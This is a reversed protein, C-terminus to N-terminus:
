RRPLVPIHSSAARHATNRVRWTALLLATLTVLLYADGYLHQWWTWALERYRTMPLDHHPGILFVAFVVYVAIASGASRVAQAVLVVLAPVIWVWHHSWATPSVLLMAIANVVLANAPDVRTMLLLAAGLVGFCAALWVGTEWAGPLDLRALAAAITQNAGYPSGSVGETPGAGTFWYTTSERWAVVFGVVTCAGASVMTVVVARFDKRLLFFLIFAAPTLKIAFALGVLTGRPLFTKRALCDVVVLAMLWLNVQGFTLTERVPELVLAVPVLIATAGAVEHGSLGPWCRGIVVYISVTLAALSLLTTLVMSVGLPVAALPAFVLLSSPPYLYPLSNGASTAPLPSYVDRGSWWAAAGFRYVQLDILEHGDLLAAARALALLGCAVIITVRLRHSASGWWSRLSRITTRFASSLDVSGVMCPRPHPKVPQRTGRREVM